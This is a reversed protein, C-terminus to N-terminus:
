HRPPLGGPRIPPPPTFEETKPGEVQLEDIMGILGHMGPFEIATLMIMLMALWDMVKVAMLPAIILALFGALGFAMSVTGDNLMPMSYATVSIAVLILAMLPQVFIWSMTAEFIQGGLRRTFYFSFLLITIPFLVIMQIVMFFRVAIILFPSVFMIVSFMMLYIANWYSFVLTSMFNLWLGDIAGLLVEIGPRVDVLNLISGTLYESLDLLLQVIPITLVIVGLSIILKIISSKARARGLPSGSMFLLYFATVTVALIYFPETLRIFFRVLSSIEDQEVFDGGSTEVMITPNLLILEPLREVNNKMPEFYAWSIFLGYAIRVVMEGIFDGVADLFAKAELVLKVLVLPAIASASTIMAIVLTAAIVIAKEKKTGYSIIGKLGKMKNM